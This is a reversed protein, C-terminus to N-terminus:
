LEDEGERCLDLKLLFEPDVVSLWDVVGHSPSCSSMKELIERIVEEVSKGTTDVEIVKDEGVSEIAKVLSYDLIEALVNECLKRGRWGREERLRRYLIYPNLRLVIVWDILSPDILEVLLTDFVSNDNELLIERVLKEAHEVDIVEYSFIEPNYRCAGSKVLERNLNVYRLNLMEALRSAITTKGTGPTGTVVLRM